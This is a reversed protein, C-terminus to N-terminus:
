AIYGFLFAGDVLVGSEDFLSIEIAMTEEEPFVEWYGSGRVVGGETPEDLDFWVMDDTIGTIAFTYSLNEDIATLKGSGDSNIRLFASSYIEDEYAEFEGTWEGDLEGAYARAGADEMSIGRMMCLTQVPMTVFDLHDALSPANGYADGIYHITSPASGGSVDDGYVILDGDLDIIQTALNIRYANGGLIYSGYKQASYRIELVYEVEDLTTARIEKPLAALLGYDIWCEGTRECVVPILKGAPLKGMADPYTEGMDEGHFDRGVLTALLEDSSCTGDAYFAQVVDGLRATMPMYDQETEYFADSYKDLWYDLPLLSQQQPLFSCLTDFDYTRETEEEERQVIQAVIPFRELSSLETLMKTIADGDDAAALEEYKAIVEEDTMNKYSKSLVSSLVVAILVVGAVAAAIWIWKKKKKPTPVAALEKQEAPILSGEAAPTVPETPAAPEEAATVTLQAAVTTERMMPTAPEQVTEPMAPGTEPADPVTEPENPRSEQVPATNEQMTPRGMRGFRGGSQDPVVSVPEATPVAKEAAPAPIDARTEEQPVFHYRGYSNSESM